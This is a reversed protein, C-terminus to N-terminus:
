RSAERGRQEFMGQAERFQAIVHQRERDSRWGPHQEAMVILRDIWRVFYAASERDRIKQDGAYVYIANTTAMPRRDEVPHEARVTIAQLTYWGSRTVRITKQFDAAERRGDLPIQEMVQGNSVLELRDIPVISNLRAEIHVVGGAPPLHVDDGPMASNIQLQLLPGNTVFGHGGLLAQMYNDWSLEKRGLFFYGRTAGVLRSRHLNSISDEGGTVQVRFGCNLAHHWVILAGQSAQSWLELYSSTGLALDVPFGKASGDPASFIWDAPDVDLNGFPHVYAGIGGEEAAARFIDTNSPYLSEIATGEYGTAFPSILHDKLNFLSIHGLFPPRYEQGTHMIRQKTSVPNLTRGPVFYQYDLVRNDKNAIQHSIVDVDEASNMFMMNEPTNHLNGGYNMHEHDSASVWGRRKLDIMRRLRLTIPSAHGAFVEVTQRAPWYEFGHVAEVTYRGVPVETTFHGRTHFLHENLISIREYSESPTYPKGDAAQAYIRAPMEGGSVGDVVRVNVRGMPRSWHRSTIRILRSAGGWSKLLKLQPLGNENSVYAIWEGDPSWRPQFSDYDGFTLQYPAGGDAPLIFLNSYQSGVHSSYVIRKGDPSWQPRTRYLTQESEIVRARGGNIVDRAVPARWISGSGLAIGRNSIFILEKGDPSWAPSIHMDFTGFYLRSRPYAHDTTIAVPLDKARNSLEVVYINFHGNPSTSVYALRKGDPSWAPDVNIGNGSTLDVSSGTAVDFLRLNISTGGDDATYAIWKGDPSWEPSSLYERSTLIEYATGGNVGIKWLSGDMAFVLWRGDPSWCPWWPTSSGAPPLYYNQMYTGGEKAAPYVVPQAAAFRTAPLILFLLLVRVSM